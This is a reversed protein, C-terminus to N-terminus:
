GWWFPQHKAIIQQSDFLNNETTFWKCWLSHINGVGSFISVNEQLVVGWGLSLIFCVFMCFLIQKFIYLCLKNIARKTKPVQRTGPRIKDPCCNSSVMEWKHSGIVCSRSHKRYSITWHEQLRPEGRNRPKEKLAASKSGKRESQELGSCSHTKGRLFYQDQSKVEWTFVKELDGSLQATM